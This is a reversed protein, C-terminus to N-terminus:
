LSAVVQLDAGVSTTSARTSNLLTEVLSLRLKDASESSAARATEYREKRLHPQIVTVQMQYESDDLELYELFECRSKRSGDYWTGPDPLSPKGLKEALQRVSLYGLNKSAQSAVIEYATASIGRGPADSTSGKVHILELTWDHRLCVFDAVEGPGDDCTVWCGKAYEQVVWAFLSRDGGDAISAHIEAPNRGLPKEQRVDYGSFDKWSWRPFRAARVETSFISGDIIAHGSRYYITVLEPYNQLARLVPLLRQEDSTGGDSGFAFGVKGYGMRPVCSIYGGISGGAGAMVRFSSGPIVNDIHILASSLIQAAEILEENELDKTSLMEPGVPVVEYAGSVVELDNVESALWMFPSDLTTGADICRRLAELAETVTSVFGDFTETSGFWILSKRPTAGVVGTLNTLDPHISELESRASGMAFTRDELPNLADQLKTGSLSKSDPKTTRRPHAGRLWLSKAEGTLFTANIIAPPVRRYPPRPSGDLWRQLADRRPGDCHVAILGRHRLAVTLELRTEIFDSDALAWGPPGSIQSVFGDIAFDDVNDDADASSLGDTTGDFGLAVVTVERRGRSKRLGVLTKVLDRLSPPQADGVYELVVASAFPRLSERRMRKTTSSSDTV